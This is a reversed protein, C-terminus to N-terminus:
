QYLAIQLLTRKLKTPLVPALAKVETVMTKTLAVPWIEEPHKASNVDMAVDSDNSNDDDSQMTGQIALVEIVQNIILAESEETGVLKFRRVMFSDKFVFGGKIAPGASKAPMPKSLAAAAALKLVSSPVIPMISPGAVPLALAIIPKSVPKPTSSILVIPKSIQHSPGAVPTKLVVIEVEKDLEIIEKKNRAGTLEEVHECKIKKIMHVRDEEDEENSDSNVLERLKFSQKAGAQKSDQQQTAEEEDDDNEMAKAKGKSKNYPVLWRSPPEVTKEFEAAWPVESKRLWEVFNLNLLRWDNLLEKLLSFMTKYLPALTALGQAKFFVTDTAAIFEQAAHEHKLLSSDATVHLLSIKSAIYSSLLFDALLM